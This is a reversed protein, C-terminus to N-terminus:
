LMLKKIKNIQEQLNNEEDEEDDNDIIPSYDIKEEPPPPLNVDDDEINDIDDNKGPIEPTKAQIPQPSTTNQTKPKKIPTPRAKDISKLVKEPESSQKGIEAVDKEIQQILSKKDNNLIKLKEVYFKNEEGNKTAKYRELTDAIEIDLKKLQERKDNLGSDDIRLQKIDSPKNPKDIVDPTKVPKEKTQKSKQNFDTSVYTTIMSGDDGGGNYLPRTTDFTENSHITIDKMRAVIFTRWGHEDFGRKSVSPPQVYARIVLRNKKNLGIAVAEAKIRKGRKVSIADPKTPGSYYFTIPNRNKIAQVIPKVKSSKLVVQEYIIEINDM